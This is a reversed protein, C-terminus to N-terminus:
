HKAFISRRRSGSNSKIRAGERVNTKTKTTHKKLITKGEEVVVKEVKKIGYSEDIFDIFEQIKGSQFLLYMKNLSEVNKAYPANLNDLGKPIVVAKFSINKKREEIRNLLFNYNLPTLMNNITDLYKDQYLLTKFQEGTLNVCPAPYATLATPSTLGTASNPPLTVGMHQTFALGHNAYYRSTLHAYLFAKIKSLGFKTHLLDTIRPIVYYPYNVIKDSYAGPWVYGGGTCRTSIAYRLGIWHMYPIKANIRSPAIGVWYYASNDSKTRTLNSWANNVQPPEQEGFYLYEFGAESENLFKLWYVLTEETMDVNALENKHIPFLFWMEGNQTFACCDANSAVSPEGTIHSGYPNYGNSGKQGRTFFNFIGKSGLLKEIVQEKKLESAFSLANHTINSFKNDAIFKESFM